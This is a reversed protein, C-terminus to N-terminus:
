RRPAGEAELRRLAAEQSTRCVANRCVKGGEPTRMAELFADHGCALKALKSRYGWDRRRLNERQTVAELHWPNVCTRRRCVHDLYRDDAVPGRVRAYLEAHADRPGAKTWWTPYGNSNTKGAWTWCGYLEDREVLLQSSM